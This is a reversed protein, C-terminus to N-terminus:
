VSGGFLLFVLIALWMAGVAHWYLALAGHKSRPRIVAPVLALAGALVHAGHVSALALYSQGAGSQRADVDQWLTYLEQGQLLLFLIAVIAALGYLGRRLQAGRRGMDAVLLLISLLALLGTGAWLGTSPVPLEAAAFASRDSRLAQLTSVLAAFGVADSLVFIWMAVISSKAARSHETSM